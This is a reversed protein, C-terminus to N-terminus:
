GLLRVCAYMVPLTFVVGDFRDLFGGHGPLISGSDKRNYSRKLMSEGLDGIQSILGVSISATLALAVSMEPIFLARYLFTIGIGAVLGGISGEITKKPSILPYLKHKGLSKGAFYAGSDGAWNILFFVILWHLGDPLNRLAPLFLPLAALYLLGFVGFMMEQTHTLLTTGKYRRATFLFYSFLVLFGSVLVAGLTEPLVGFSLAVATTIVALVGIKEVRDPLAMTMDGFELIMGISIIWALVHGGWGDGYVVLGVLAAGGILATVVRKALESSSRGSSVKRVTM